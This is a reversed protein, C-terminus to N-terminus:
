RPKEGERRTRPDLWLGAADALANVTTVSVAMVLVSGLVAPADRYAISTVLYRGLGNLSFLTETLVAGGMLRGSEMGLFTIVPLSANPLAHVVVRRWLPAGKARATVLFPQQLVDVLSAALIRATAAGTHAGLALSPLLLHAWSDSGGPPLLRWSVSVVLILVLGLWYVPTALTILGAWDLARAIVGHPRAAIFLGTPLALALAILTSSAALALTLPLRAQIEALIPRGTRLSHGLDGRALGAVYRILRIPVPDDLGLRQRMREVDEVSAEEGAYLEAPDGPLWQMLVFTICAIGVIAILWDGARSLARTM